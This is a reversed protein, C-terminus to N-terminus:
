SSKKLMIKLMEPSVPKTIFDYAGLKMARVALQVSGYATFIIISINSDFEKTSKLFTLGEEYNPMKLDTLVVDPHIQHVINLAEAVDGATFCDYGLEKIFQSRDKLLEIDDGVLLVKAM